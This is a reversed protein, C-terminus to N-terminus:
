KMRKWGRHALWQPQEEVGIFALSLPSMRATRQRSYEERSRLLGPEKVNKLNQSM